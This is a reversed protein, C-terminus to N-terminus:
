RPEVLHRFLDLDDPDDSAGRPRLACDLGDSSCRSHQRPSSPQVMSVCGFSHARLTSTQAAPHPAVVGTFWPVDPADTAAEVPPRGRPLVPDAVVVPVAAPEVVLPRPPVFEAPLGVVAPVPVEEVPALPVEDPCLAELLAPVVPGPVAPALVEPLPPELLLVEEEPLPDEDPPLVPAGRQSRASSEQFPGAV